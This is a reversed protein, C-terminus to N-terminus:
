AVTCQGRAKPKCMKLIQRRLEVDVLQNVHQRHKIVLARVATLSFDLCLQRHLTLFGERLILVGLIDHFFPLRINGHLIPSYLGIDESM